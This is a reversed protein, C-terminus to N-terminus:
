NAEIRKVAEKETLIPINHSSAYTYKSSSSPANCILFDAKKVDVEKVKGKYVTFFEKRTKFQDTKGTYCVMLMDGTSESSETEKVLGSFSTIASYIAKVYALNNLIADKANYPINATVTESAIVEEPTQEIKKSNSEGLNELNMIFWFEWNELGKDLKAKVNNVLQAMLKGYHSNKDYEKDIFKLLNNVNHFASIFKELTNFESNELMKDINSNSLGFPIECVNLLRYIAAQAKASCASNSCFLFKGDEVLKSGCTPCVTPMELKNNESYNDSAVIEPIIGNAKRVEIKVGPKIGMTNIFQYNYGSANCVTSGEIFIPDFNVVPNIRGSNGASWIVERVITEQSSGAFKYAISDEVLDNDVKRIQDKTFVLGDIPYTAQCKHYFEEAFKYSGSKIEKVPPTNFGLKSLLALIEKKSTPVNNEPESNVISYTIFTVYKLEPDNIKDRNLIGSVYNRPNPVGAEKLETFGENTILAEGRISILGKLPISAPIQRSIKSLVNQGETGDGRTIAAIPVGNKYTVVVSGGDLKPTCISRDGWPNGDKIKSLSGIKQNSFHKSKFRGSFSGGGWGISKLVESEPNLSRLEDVLSDFERDSMIEKGLYYSHAAEAIKKELAKIEM